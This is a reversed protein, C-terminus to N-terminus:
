SWPSRRPRSPLRSGSPALASRAGQPVVAGERRYAILGAALFIIGAVVVSLMLGVHISFQLASMSEAAIPCLFAM